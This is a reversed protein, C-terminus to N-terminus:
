FLHKYEPYNLKIINKWKITENSNGLDNKHYVLLVCITNTQKHVAVICRNGSAKRSKNTGAIRCEVKVIKINDKDIITEAISTSFLSDMRKLEEIIARWTVEWLGKYKKKFNKLYHQEAFSKVIVSYNTSM